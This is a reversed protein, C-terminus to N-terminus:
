EPTGDKGTIVPGLHLVRGLRVWKSRGALYLQAEAQELAANRRQLEADLSSSERALRDIEVLAGKIQAELDHVWDLRVAAEAELQRVKEQYGAHTASLEAEIQRVRVQYGAHANALETELNSIAAAADRNHQELEGLLQEHNKQLQALDKQADQLWTNKQALEGELLAVHHERERLVNGSRHASAFARPPPLPSRSCAALFFHAHEPTGDGPADLDGPSRSLPLFVIAESHNQTWLGVHPFVAKLASDFEPYDFERVHYPNPGATGRTEAYYARNPTSVLLVGAPRLVRRAETLMRQWQELHEIVEFAAILDFSEDEFPLADCSAQLFRVGIRGYERRAYAVADASVDVGVVSSAAAFEASGYGSGCGADLVRAGQAFRAAFRYRALHENLLDPEVLGPIVREGTFDLM